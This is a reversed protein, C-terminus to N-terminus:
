GSESLRNRDMGDVWEPLVGLGSAKSQFRHVSEIPIGPRKRDSDTSPNLRHLCGRKAKSPNERIIQEGLPTEDREKRRAESSWASSTAIGWPRSSSELIFSLLWGELPSVTSGLEKLFFTQGAREGDHSLLQFTPGQLFLPPKPLAALTELTVSRREVDVDGWRLSLV